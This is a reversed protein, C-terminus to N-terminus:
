KFNNQNRWNWSEVKTVKVSKLSTLFDSLCLLFNFFPNMNCHINLQAYNKYDKYSCYYYYLCPINVRILCLVMYQIIFHQYRQHRVEMKMKQKPTRDGHRIVAIVCRLEMRFTMMIRKHVRKTVRKPKPLFFSQISPGIDNM